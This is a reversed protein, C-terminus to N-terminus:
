SAAAGSFCKEDDVDLAEDAGIEILRIRQGDFLNAADLASSHFLSAAGNFWLVRPIKQRPVSPAIGRLLQRATGDEAEVFFATAKEERAVASLMTTGPILRKAAVSFKRLSEVSVDPSTCQLLLINGAFGVRDRWARLKVVINEDDGTPADLVFPIEAGAARAHEAYAASDTLVIPARGFAERAKAVAIELLSKGGRFPRVNKDKVSSGARAPIVVALPTEPKPSFISKRALASFYAERAVTEIDATGLYHRGDRELYARFADGRSFGAVLVECNRAHEALHALVITGTTFRRVSPPTKDDRAIECGRFFRLVERARLREPYRVCLVLPRQAEVIARGRHEDDNKLWATCPTVVVVDTKTGLKGGPLSYFNNLRIVVDCADIRASLDEEPEANGVVAVRKGDVIDALSVFPIERRAEEEAAKQAAAARAAESAAKASEPKKQDTSM